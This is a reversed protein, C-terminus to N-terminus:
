KIGLTRIFQTVLKQDYEQVLSSRIMQVAKFPSVRKQWPRDSTLSDFCDALSVISSFQSIEQGLSYPYGKGGPREHHQLVIMEAQEPIARTKRLIEYGFEPHRRLEHLEDAALPEKKELIKRDIKSKGIDHLLSGIGIASLDNFSSFGSQRALCISYAATQIAHTYESFDTSAMKMLDQFNEQNKLYDISNKILSVSRKLGEPSYPRNFIQSVVSQSTEYLIQTKEAKSIKPQDLIRSLNSELFLYFEDRSGAQVYLVRVGFHGLRESDETKWILNRPRFLLYQGQYYLFIDRDILEDAQYFNSPIQFYEQAPAEAKAKGKASDARSGM